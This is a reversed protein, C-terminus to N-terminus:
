ENSQERECVKRLEIETSILYNITNESRLMSLKDCWRGKKNSKRNKTLYRKEIKLFFSMFEFLDM